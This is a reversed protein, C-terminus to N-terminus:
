AQAPLAGPLVLSTRPRDALARPAVFFSRPLLEDDAGLPAAKLAAAAARRVRYDGGAADVLDALALVPNNRVEAGDAPPAGAGVLLNNVLRVRDAGPRVSVFVGPAGREDVLTNYAMHLENKSPYLGEAGFSVIRANETLPGQQIVNGVVVARGGNPFELEYSARGRAGDALRNYAVLNDRARSKLLHGSDAGHFHCGTAELRAIAGAYVHHNRGDARRQRAFECREITLSAGAENGTLIGSENDTFTCDVVHLSGAEARIGAGNLSPVRAGEFDFGEVRVDQGRVVFIGKGHAAAGDALLRARGGIARLRLGNQPWFAVDGRYEGADVEVMAGDTAAAAAEALTRLPRNPGVKLVTAGGSAAPVQAWAPRALLWGLLAM